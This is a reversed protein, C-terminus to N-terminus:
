EIDWSDATLVSLIEEPDMGSDSSFTDDARDYRRAPYKVNIIYDYDRDDIYKM